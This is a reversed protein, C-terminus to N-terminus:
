TFVAATIRKFHPNNAARGQLATARCRKPNRKHLFSLSSPRSGKLSEAGGGKSHPPEVGSQTEEFVVWPPTSGDCELSEAGGVESLLAGKGRQTVELVVWLPTSGGCELVEDER